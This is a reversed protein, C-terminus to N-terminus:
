IEAAEYSTIEMGVCIETIEPCTWSMRHSRKPAHPRMMARDASLWDLMRPLSRADQIVRAAMEM